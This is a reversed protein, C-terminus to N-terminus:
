LQSPARETQHSWDANLIVGTRLDIAYYRQEANTKNGLRSRLFIVASGPPGWLVSGSCAEDPLSIEFVGPTPWGALCSGGWSRTLNVGCVRGDPAVARDAAQAEGQHRKWYGPLDFVDTLWSLRSGAPPGERRLRRWLEANHGAIYENIGRSPNVDEIVQIPLANREDITLPELPQRWLDSRQIQEPTAYLVVEGHSWEEAAARVGRARAEPDPPWANSGYPETVGRPRQDRFTRDVGSVAERIQTPTAGARILEPTFEEATAM